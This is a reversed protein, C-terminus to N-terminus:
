IYWGIDFFVTYSSNLGDIEGFICYQLFLVQNFYFYFISSLLLQGELQQQQEKFKLYIQQKKHQYESADVQCKNFENIVSSFIAFLFLKFNNLSNHYKFFIKDLM